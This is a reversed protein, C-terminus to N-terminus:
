AHDSLIKGDAHDSAIVMSFNNTGVQCVQVALNSRLWQVVGLSGIAHVGAILLPCRDENFRLRGLYGVDSTSPEPDDIGSLHRQGGDPRIQSIRGPTLGMKRWSAALRNEMCAM